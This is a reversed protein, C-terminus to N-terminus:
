KALGIRKLIAQFRPLNRIPDFDASVGIYLLTYEHVDASRQLWQIAEPDGLHAYVAAFTSAPLVKSEAELPRILALAEDKRGMRSLALARNMQENPGPEPFRDYDTLALAPKGQLVYNWDINNRPGRMQPFRSLLSECIEISDAYRRELTRALSLNIM